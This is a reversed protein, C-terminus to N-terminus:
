RSGWILIPLATAVITAAVVVTLSVRSSAVLRTGYYWTVTTYISALVAFWSREALLITGVVGGIDWALFFVFLWAQARLYSRIATAM